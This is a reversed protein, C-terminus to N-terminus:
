TWSGLLISLDGGTIVGDGDLDFTPDADGWAGLLLTLDAGDVLGDGDFDGSVGVAAVDAVADLEPLFMADVPVTFRVFRVADLGTGALDIPTGGGSGDYAEIVESWCMGALMGPAHVPDVPRTFDSELTGPGDGFPEADLYGLTPFLGDVEVGEVPVFGIGDSSVEVFGGEAYISQVCPPGAATTFFANGFVILDVGFPNGPDDIVPEAFALTLRGGAGITVLEDPQWAPQFPTVVDPDATTGTMRTPPGLASLPNRYANGAGQGPVYEVVEAAFQGSAQAGMAGAVVFTALPVTRRRLCSRRDAAALRTRPPRIAPRNMFISRMM